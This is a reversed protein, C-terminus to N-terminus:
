STCTLSPTFVVLTYPPAHPIRLTPDPVFPRAHVPLRKSAREKQFAPRLVKATESQMEEIKDVMRFLM